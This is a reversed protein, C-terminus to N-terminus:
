NSARLLAAYYRRGMERLANPGFHICSTNGCAFGNAPILDDNITVAAHAIKAPLLKHANDVLQKEAWFFSLDDREDIGRSMTGLVFPINADPQRLDGTRLDPAIQLRLQQAMRELNELYISGCESNSDSEGQHWLIGRLIGGSQELAINTRTVARDFLWTNGLVPNSTEQANWQGPPGNENNCFSSASWAAPVLVINQTTDQLAAKAFSLGMGIYSLEKSNNFPDTPVHLPDEARVILDDMVNKSRSTFDERNKFINFQDNQSVNLQLIRDNPEDLGGAFSQKTGDGSFGVMNSQGILLYVDPAAVPEVELEIQMTAQNEGDTATVVFTRQHRLLPRDAIDLRINLTSSNTEAGLNSPVFTSTVFADDGITSGKVTLQIDRNHGDRRTLNFPINIGSQRGEVLMPRAVSRLDFAGTSSNTIGSGDGNITGSDGSSSCGVVLLLLLFVSVVHSIILKTSIM